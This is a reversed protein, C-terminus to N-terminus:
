VYTLSIKVSGTKAGTSTPTVSTSVYYDHSTAAAQDSFTLAAGLGNATRWTTNAVGDQVSHAQFTVGAMATADTTGDYAYFKAASTAVSAADTFTFKLGHSATAVPLSTSGAGNISVTTSTLWKTNNVHNTTCLHSDTSTTIHTTDQYSGVVVNTGFSAGNWWVRDTANVTLTGTTLQATLGWSAM